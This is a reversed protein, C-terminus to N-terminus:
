GKPLIAIRLKQRLCLLIVVNEALWYEIFYTAYAGSAPWDGFNQGLLKSLSHYRTTVIAWRRSRINLKRFLLGLLPCFLRRCSGETRRKKRPFNDLSSPRSPSSIPSTFPDLVFHTPSIRLSASRGEPPRYSEPLLTLRSGLLNFLQQNSCHYQDDDPSFM